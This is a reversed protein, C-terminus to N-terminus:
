HMSAQVADKDAEAEASREAEIHAVRTQLLELQAQMRALVKAFLGSQAFDQDFIADFQETQKM